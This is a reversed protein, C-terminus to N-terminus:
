RTIFIGSSTATGGATTVAISGTKAGPPVTATVETDSDVTFPTAKVGGFTVQKTQTLSVGTITVQTGVPGAPPNFSLIQPTVRFAVNSTLGGSLAEHGRLKVKGTRAGAPVTTKIESDSVVTFTAAIGEFTVSTVSTLDNGLISVTAGVKGSTPLTEVFSRLGPASFRFVTGCGYPCVTSENAGGVTTTGYLNGDTAQFLGRVPNGSNTCKTLSCFRYLTTLYRAAEIRFVTGCSPPACGLLGDVNVTTGYLNGDTAQVLGARPYAGDNPNGDFRYLTTLKGAPTIEFVTGCGAGIGELVCRTGLIGGGTVTTGYFNGNNAQVLGAMPNGGDECDLSQSCFYYLTTLKGAPTMEFVSGVDRYPGFGFLTTGYFNGNTGQVLRSTPSSGDVYEFDHLTTLKGAPTIEFVTGCGYFCLTPDIVGGGYTTGYFNGNTARVLGGVPHAGDTCNTQSCFNYLTTLKGAPKIEFVTGCGDPCLTSDIVGGGYTTGYFNGNIGQVLGGIPNAGDTCNTQSCFNYLTTLQGAPTVEFLTGCGQPCANNAGGNKTTGYFNGNTAQVMEASPNAGDTGNFSVLTTLTDAASVIVTAACLLLVAYAMRLPSLKGSSTDCSREFREKVM